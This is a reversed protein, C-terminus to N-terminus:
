GEGNGKEAIQQKLKENEDLLRDIEALAAAAHDELQKQLQGMLEYAKVRELPMDLREKLVRAREVECHHNSKWHGVEAILRGIEEWLRKNEDTQPLDLEAELDAIQSLMAQQFLENMKPDLAPDTLPNEQIELLAKYFTWRQIQTVIHQKTYKVAM